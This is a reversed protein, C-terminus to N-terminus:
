AGHPAGKLVMPDLCGEKVELPKRTEDIVGASGGGLIKALTLKMFEVSESAASGDYAM